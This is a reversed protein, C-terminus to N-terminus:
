HTAQGHREVHRGAGGSQHHGLGRRREREEVERMHCGDADRDRQKCLTVIGHRLRRRRCLALLSCASSPSSASATPPVCSTSLLRNPPSPTAATLFSRSSLSPHTLSLRPGLGPSVLVSSTCHVSREVSGHVHLYATHTRSTRARPM